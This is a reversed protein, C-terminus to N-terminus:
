AAGTFVFPHPYRVEAAEAAVEAAEATAQSAQAATAYNAIAASTALIQATSFATYTAPGAALLTYTAYGVPVSAYQVTMIIGTTPPTTDVTLEAADVRAELSIYSSYAALEVQPSGLVSVPALSSMRFSTGTALSYTLATYYSYPEDDFEAYTLPMPLVASFTRGGAFSETITYEFTEHFDPDDSAPLTVTFAGNADLTVYYSSAVLIQDALANRLAKPVAFIVQGAIPDGEFDVYEGTVIVTAVNGALAM